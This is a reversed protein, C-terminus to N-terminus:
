CGRLPTVSLVCYRPLSLGARASNLVGICGAQFSKTYVRLAEDEMSWRPENMWRM